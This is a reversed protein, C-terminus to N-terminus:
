MGALQPPRQLIWFGDLELPVNSGGLVRLQPVTHATARVSRPEDKGFWSARM